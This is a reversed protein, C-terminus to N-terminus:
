FTSAQSGLGGFLKQDVKVTLSDAEVKLITTTSTIPFDQIPPVMSADINRRGNGVSIARTMETKSMLDRSCPSGDSRLAIGFAGFSSLDPSQSIFESSNQDVQFSDFYQNEVKGSPDLEQILLPIGLYAEVGAVALFPFVLAATLISIRTIM